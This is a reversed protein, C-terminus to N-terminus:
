LSKSNHSNYDEVKGQSKLWAERKKMLSASDKSFLYIILGLWFGAFLIGIIIYLMSDEIIGKRILWIGLILFTIYVILAGVIIGIIVELPFDGEIDIGDAVLFRNLM